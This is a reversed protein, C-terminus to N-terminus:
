FFVWSRSSQACRDDCRHVIWTSRNGTPHTIISRSSSPLAPFFHNAGFDKSTDFWELRICSDTLQFSRTKLCQLYPPNAFLNFNFTTGQKSTVALQCMVMMMVVVVVVVMMMMMMMMMPMMKYWWCNWGSPWWLNMDYEHWWCWWRHGQSADWSQSANRWQKRGMPDDQCTRRKLWRWSVCLCTHGLNKNSGPYISTIVKHMHIYMIMMDSTCCAHVFMM